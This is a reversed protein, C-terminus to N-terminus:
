KRYAKDVVAFYAAKIESMLKWFHPDNLMKEEEEKKNLVEDTVNVYNHPKM